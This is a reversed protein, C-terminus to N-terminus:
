RLEISAQELALKIHRHLERSVLDRSHARTKVILEVKMHDTQFSTVGLFKPTSLLANKWHPDQGFEEAVSSLTATLLQLDTACPVLMAIVVNAFEYTMNSVTKIEGNPVIHLTGDIDRIATVRLGMREVLGTLTSNIKIIDGIRIQDEILLFFGSIVDKVLSQSGFGIAVGAIGAGALLPTINFGLEQLVMLVAIAFLVIRLLADLLNVVTSLRKNREQTSGDSTDSRMRKLIQLCAFHILRSCGYILGLILVIKLGHELFLPAWHDLFIM